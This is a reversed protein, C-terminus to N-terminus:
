AAIAEPGELKSERAQKPTLRRIGSMHPDTSRPSSGDILSIGWIFGVDDIGICLCPHCFGDEYLDGPQINM